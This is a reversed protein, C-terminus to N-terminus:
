GMLIAALFCLNVAALFLGFALELHRRSLRHALAVGFRITLLPTPITLAFTALSVFGGADAPLDARGWGAAIYGLTGPLAILVGLLVRSPVM